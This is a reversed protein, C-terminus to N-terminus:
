YKFLILMKIQGGGWANDGASNKLNQINPKLGEITENNMPVGLPNKWVGFIKRISPFKGTLMAVVCFKCFRKEKRLFYM